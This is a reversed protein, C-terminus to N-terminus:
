KSAILSGLAIANLKDEHTDARSILVIPAKAGLVIGASNANAFYTLTKGIGNGMEINPMLFIDADGAVPSVYKKIEAARSSVALDLAMPGDVVVNEGFIGEQGKQKLLDADVTAPMKPNVKEKAALCAVKVSNINLAKAAQIANKLIQEKKEVNPYMNMGGDTLLLLKHYAPIDYVMVHSLLRDTRLGNEKDLIAKLFISTDVLGKMIFDARGERVYKTALKASEEMSEAKVLKFKDLNISNNHAIEKIKEISGFLVAEILGVEVASDVAKLVELEEASAVALIMSKNKKAVDFLKEFSNIM